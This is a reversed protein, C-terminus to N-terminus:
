PIRFLERANRTTVTAIEDVSTGRLEALVAAVTRVNAPVNEGDPVDQMGLGPADTELVVHELPVTAASRRVRRARPRTVAGGLGLHLGLELFRRALEPGRSFAHVVGRLPGAAEIEEIFTEFAGRCHLIVPLDMDRALRLQDRFVPMQVELEPDDITTDLGIEGVAVAGCARLRARLEDIDVGERAKWPHLGLAPHVHDHESTLSAILDWGRTDFAPLVFGTVGAVRAHAIVEPLDRRLPDFDLHVHTDIFQLPPM